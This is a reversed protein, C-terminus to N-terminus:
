EFEADEEKKNNTIKRYEGKELHVKNGALNLFQLTSNYSLTHMLKQLTIPSLNLYSLDLHTLNEATRAAAPADTIAQIYQCLESDITSAHDHDRQRIKFNSLTLKSLFLQNRMSSLLKSMTTYSICSCGVLQLELLSNPRPRQLLQCIAAVTLDGIKENFINVSIIHDQALIGQLVDAIQQDSFGCDKIELVKIKSEECDKAWGLYKSLVRCETASMGERELVLQQNRIKTFIPWPRAGEKHFESFTQFFLREENSTICETM